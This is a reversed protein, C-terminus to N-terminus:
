LLPSLLADLDIALRNLPLFTSSEPKFSLMSELLLPPPPLLLTPKATLLLMPLAKVQFHVEVANQPRAILRVERAAIL